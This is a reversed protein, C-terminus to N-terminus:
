QAPGDGGDDCRGYHGELFPEWSKGDESYEIRLSYHDDDTLSYSFRAQGNEGRSEFVLQNTNWRGNAPPTEGLTDFWNMTYCGRVPSFGYVGHGRFTVKEDVSQIYDSILYFGDLSIRANVRSQAVKEESEWRSAFLTEKGKWSGALAQLRRHSETLKPPNM